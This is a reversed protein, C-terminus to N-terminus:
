KQIVSPMNSESHQQKKAHCLLTLKIANALYFLMIRCLLQKKAVALQRNHQEHSCLANFKSINTYIYTNQKDHSLNLWYCTPSRQHYFYYHRDVINAQITYKSLQRPCIKQGLFNFASCGSIFVSTKFHVIRCLETTNQRKQCIGADLRMQHYGTEDDTWETPLLRDEKHWWDPVNASM